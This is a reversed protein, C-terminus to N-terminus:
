TFTTVTELQGDLVGPFPTQPPAFNKPEVRSCDARLTQKKEPHKKMQRTNMQWAFSITAIEFLMEVFIFSLCPSM